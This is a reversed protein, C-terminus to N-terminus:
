WCCVLNGNRRMRAECHCKINTRHTKKKFMECVNNFSACVVKMGNQSSHCPRHSHSNQTFFLGSFFRPGSRVCIKPKCQCTAWFTSIQCLFQGWVLSISSAFVLGSQLFKRKDHSIVVLPSFFIRVLPWCKCSLYCTLIM